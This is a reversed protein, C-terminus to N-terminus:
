PLVQDPQEGDARNCTIFTGGRVDTKQTATLAPVLASMNSNFHAQVSHTCQPFDFGRQMGSM